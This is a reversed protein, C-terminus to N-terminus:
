EDLVRGQKSEVVHYVTTVMIRSACKQIKFQLLDNGQDYLPRDNDHKTTPLTPAPARSRAPSGLMKGENRSIM